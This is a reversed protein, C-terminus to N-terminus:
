DRTAAWATFEESALLGEFSKDRELEAAGLTHGFQQELMQLAEVAGTHDVLGARARLASWWGLELDSQLDIAREAAANAEEANGMALLIASIRAEMAADPFGLHDYTRQLGDLAEQYMRSPVYYDLLMLTFLPEEPFHEAMQVLATRMMRRSRIRKTLLVSNLVVVRQRQVQPPMKNIIEIYRDVRGDRLAKLLETLQFLEPERINQYDILKRVAPLTPASMVLSTGVNDLYKEGLLYDTWDLIIVNNDEDLQLDYAHYNFQLEPLDYRVVARGRYGRSEVGLLTARIGDEDSPLGARLMDAFQFEMNERFSTKVRQDILRLGFIRDITPNREFASVFLDTSGENLSDVLTVAALRFAEQRAMEEKQADSIEQTWAPLAVTLLLLLSIRIRTM